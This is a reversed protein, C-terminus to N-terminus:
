FVFRGSREDWRFRTGYRRRMDREIERKQANRVGLMIGTTLVGITGLGMFTGGLPVLVDGTNNCIWDDRGDFRVFSDCQSAGIGFLIAGVAFAASTGILGNRVVRSRREAEQLDYDSYGYGGPPGYVASAESPTQAQIQPAADQAFTRGELVLVSLVLLGKIVIDSRMIALTYRLSPTFVLSQTARVGTWPVPM